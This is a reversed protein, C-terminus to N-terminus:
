LDPSQFTYLDICVELTVLVPKWLLTIWLLALILQSFHTLMSQYQRSIINM